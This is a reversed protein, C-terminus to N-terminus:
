KKATPQKKKRASFMTVAAIVAATLAISLSILATRWCSSSYDNYIKYEPPRKPGLSISSYNDWLHLLADPSLQDVAAHEGEIHMAPTFPIFTGRLRWLVADRWGGAILCDRLLNGVSPRSIAM